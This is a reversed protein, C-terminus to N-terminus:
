NDSRKFNYMNQFGVFNGNMHCIVRGHLWKYIKSSTNLCNLLPVINNIFKDYLTIFGSTQVLVQKFIFLTTDIWNEKQDIEFNRNEPLIRQIEETNM